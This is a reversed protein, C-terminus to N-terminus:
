KTKSKQCIGPKWENACAPAYGSTGKKSNEWREAYVDDRGRFLSMFLKIKEVSDSGNNVSPDLVQASHNQESIEPEPKHEFIDDPNGQSEEIGLQAKLSKIEERQNKIEERLNKNETLLTQYKEFLEKFDM